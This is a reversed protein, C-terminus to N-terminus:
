RLDVQLAVVKPLIPRDLLIHWLQITYVEEGGDITPRSLFKVYNTHSFLARQEDTLSSSVSSGLWGYDTTTTKCEAIDIDQLDLINLVEFSKIVVGIGVSGFVLRMKEIYDPISNGSNSTSSINPWSPSVMKIHIVIHSSYKLVNLQKLVSITPFKTDLPYGFLSQTM